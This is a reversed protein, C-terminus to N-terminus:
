LKETLPIKLERMLEHVTWFFQETEGKKPMNIETNVFNSKIETGDSVWLM